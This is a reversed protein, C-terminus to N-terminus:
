LFIIFAILAALMGLIYAAKKTKLWFFTFLIFAYLSVVGGLSLELDSSYAFPLQEITKALYNNVSLVGHVAKGVLSALFPLPSVVLLLLGLYVALMALPVILLNSVLFYNPFQHFYYIGLPFTAVQAAFSVCLLQWIKTLLWTKPTLLNVLPTYLLGIGAVALYSLQFGIKFIANADIALTFLAAAALSNFLNTKRGMANGVAIFSFMTTARVVSPSLGTLLAYLWLGCLLILAKVVAAWKKRKGVWALLGALALYIAGVHLGSVALIHITGTRAYADTLEDDIHNRLGLVIATAVSYTNSDPLYTHLTNDFYSRARYAFAFLPNAQHQTTKTYDGQLLFAQYHINQRALWLAYNFDSSDIQTPPTELKNKIIICDGYRLSSDYGKKSLYLLLKGTAPTLTDGHAVWQAEAIIKYTKPKEEPAQAIRALVKNYQTQHIIHM